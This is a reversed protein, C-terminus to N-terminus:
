WLGRRPAAPPRWGLVAETMRVARVAAAVNHVRVIRAGKLISLVLAALTGELRAELPVGLIEGIFDKNSLAVLLPYGLAAVEDLRRLLELDHFVNKHFDFGPDVILREPPVGRATAVAARDRLFGTVEGLLDRYAPRYLPTRPPQGYHTLVLTAGAGAVVDALTPDYLGFPDNIVDAGAALVARAVEPRWTEVSIVADTRERVAALLPLVRELEEAPGVPQGPGARVGGLDLWDAGEALAREAAAVAKPLEYTRGGDYFSDPTRNIIAMVAVQRSFDFRRRGIVRPMAQARASSDM